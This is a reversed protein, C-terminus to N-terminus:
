VTPSAVNAGAALPAQETPYAAPAISEQETEDVQFLADPDEVEGVCLTAVAGKVAARAHATVDVLGRWKAPDASWGRIWFTDGIRLPREAQGSAKRYGDVTQQLDASLAQAGASGSKM